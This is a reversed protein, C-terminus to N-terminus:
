EGDEYDSMKCIYGDMSMLMPEWGHEHKKALANGGFKDAPVCLIHVDDTWIHVNGSPTSLWCTDEDCMKMAGDEGDNAMVAAALLMVALVGLILVKKM